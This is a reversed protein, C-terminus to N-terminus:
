DLPLYKEIIREVLSIAEDLSTFGESGMCKKYDFGYYIRGSDIENSLVLEIRIFHRGDQCINALNFLQNLKRKNVKIM